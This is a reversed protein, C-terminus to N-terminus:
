HSHSVNANLSLRTGSHPKLPTGTDLREQPLKLGSGSEWTSPAREISTSGTTAWAQTALSTALLIAAAFLLALYISQLPPSV